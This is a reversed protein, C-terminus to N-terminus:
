PSREKESLGYKGDFLVISMRNLEKEKHAVRRAASCSSLRAGLRDSTAGENWKRM